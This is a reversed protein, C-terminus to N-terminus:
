LPNPFRVELELPNLEPRLEMLQSWLLMLEESVLKWDAEARFLILSFEALPPLWLEMGDETFEEELREM